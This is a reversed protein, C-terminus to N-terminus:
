SNKPSRRRMFVAGLVGVGMLIITGPEPTAVPANNILRAGTITAEFAELEIIVNAISTPDAPDFSNVPYSTAQETGVIKGGVNMIHIINDYLSAETGGDDVFYTADRTLMHMGYSYSVGNVDEEYRTYALQIFRDYPNQSNWGAPGYLSFANSNTLPQGGFDSLTSNPRFTWGSFDGTLLSPGSIQLDSLVVTLSRTIESSFPTLTFTQAAPDPNAYGYYKLSFDVQIDAFANSGFLAVAMVVALRFANKMYGGIKVEGGQLVYAVLLVLNETAAPVKLICKTILISLRHRCMKCMDNVVYSGGLEYLPVLATLSVCRAHCM